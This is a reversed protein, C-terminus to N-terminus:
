DYSLFSEDNNILDCIQLFFVVLVWWWWCCVFLCFIFLIFVVDIWPKWYISKKGIQINGIYFLPETILAQFSDLPVKNASATTHAIRDTRYHM